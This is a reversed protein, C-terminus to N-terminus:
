ALPPTPETGEIMESRTRLPLEPLFCVLVLAVLAIPVAALFVSSLADAFSEVVGTEVARPLAQIQEPSGRLLAPDIRQAARGLNSALESDLQSTLVAGLVAAGVSAGMSRVTTMMSTAAGVDPVPVVNQVSLMLAPTTMGIGAGAFVMCTIAVWVSTEPEIRSLVYYTLALTTLGMIPFIKYRGTRTTLRGAAITATLIGIMQPLLLLGANTANDGRVIQFYVPVFLITGFMLMGFVTATAASIRVTFIRFLRPPIIPDVARREVMVFLAILVVGVVILGLVEPSAWSYRDGGWETVLLLSVIVAVLLAAGLYDIPVSSREPRPLKMFASAVLLAAIGVPLNILFIWRWTLNDVFFGGVVPGLVSAVAWVSAVYGQYKGRERPAVIDALVGFNLVVLGGAGLGQVARAAILQGMSQSLGAMLSGLMFVVISVQFLLRRGYIDSLKGVLPMAATSTLLYISAIWALQDVGGFDGVIRPLATAVITQDLAALFSGAMLGILVMQIQRHTFTYAAPAGNGGTTTTAADDTATV